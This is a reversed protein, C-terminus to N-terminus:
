GGNRIDTNIVTNVAANMGSGIVGAAFNLGAAAIDGKKKANAMSVTSGYELEAFSKRVGINDIERLYGEFLSQATVDATGSNAAVGAAGYVNNAAALARAYQEAADRKEVALSYQAAAYQSRANAATIRANAKATNKASMYSVFGMVSDVGAKGAFLAGASM